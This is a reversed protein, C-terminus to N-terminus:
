MIVFLITPALLLVRYQTFNIGFQTALKQRVKEAEALWLWLWRWTTFKKVDGFNKSMAASAYRAVLPTRYNVHELFEDQAERVSEYPAAM